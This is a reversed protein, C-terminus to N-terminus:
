RKIENDVRHYILSPVRDIINQFVKQLMFGPLQANFLFVCEVVHLHQYNFLDFTKDTDTEGRRQELAGCVGLRFRPGLPLSM